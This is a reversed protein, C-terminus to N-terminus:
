AKMHLKQQYIMTITVPMSTQYHIVSWINGRLILIGHYVNNCEEEAITSLGISLKKLCQECHQLKNAIANVDCIYGWRASYKGNGMSIYNKARREPSDTIFLLHLVKVPIM